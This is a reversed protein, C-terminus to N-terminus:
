HWRWHRALWSMHLWQKKKGGCTLCMGDPSGKRFRHPKNYVPYKRKRM